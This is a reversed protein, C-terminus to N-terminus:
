ISIDTRIDANLKMINPSLSLSDIRWTGVILRSNEEHLTESQTFAIKSSFSLLVVSLVVFIKNM